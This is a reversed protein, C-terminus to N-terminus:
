RLVATWPAQTYNVRTYVRQMRKFNPCGDELREFKSDEKDEVMELVMSWAALM